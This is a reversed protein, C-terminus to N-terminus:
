IQDEVNRSRLLICVTEQGTLYSRLDAVAGVELLDQENITKLSRVLLMSAKLLQKGSTSSELADPVVKLYESHYFM